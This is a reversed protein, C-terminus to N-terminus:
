PQSFPMLKSRFNRYWVWWQFLRTGAKNEHFEWVISRMGMEDYQSKASKELYSHGMREATKRKIEIPQGANMRDAREHELALLADEDLTEMFENIAAQFIPMYQQTGPKAGNARRSAIAAIEAKYVHCAVQKISAKRTLSLRTLASPRRFTNHFWKKVQQFKMLYGEEIIKFKHWRSVSKRVRWGDESMHTNLPTLRPLIQTSLMKLRDKSGITKEYASTWKEIVAMEAATLELPPLPVKNAKTAAANANPPHPTAPTSM